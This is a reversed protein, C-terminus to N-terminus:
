RRISSNGGPWTIKAANLGGAMLEKKLTERATPDLAKEALTIRRDKVCLYRVLDDHTKVLAPDKKAIPTMLDLVSEGYFAKNADSVALGVLANFREPTSKIQRIIALKEWGVAQSLPLQGLALKRLRGSPLQEAYKRALAPSTNMLTTVLSESLSNTNPGPKLSGIHKIVDEPHTSLRQSLLMYREWDRESASIEASWRWAAEFRGAASHVQVLNLAASAREEGTLTPALKELAPQENKVVTEFVGPLIKAQLLKADPNQTVFAYAGALGQREALHVGLASPSFGQALPSGDLHRCVQSARSYDQAELLRPTLMGALDAAEASLSPLALVADTAAALNGAKLAATGRMLTIKSSSYASKLNAGQLLESVSVGSALPVVASLVGISGFILILWRLVGGSRQPKQRAVQLPEHREETDEAEEAVEEVEAFTTAARRRLSGASEEEKFVRRM